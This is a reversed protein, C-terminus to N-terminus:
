FELNLGFHNLYNSSFNQVEVYLTFRKSHNQSLEFYIFQKFISVIWIFLNQIGFLYKSM